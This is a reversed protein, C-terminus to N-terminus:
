RLIRQGSALIFDQVLYSGGFSHRTRIIARANGDEVLEIKELKMIGKIDHFKFLRFSSGTCLKCIITQDIIVVTNRNKIMFSHDRYFM